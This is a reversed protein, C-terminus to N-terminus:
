KLFGVKTWDPTAMGFAGFNALNERVAYTGPSQVLPLSYGEEFIMKDCENALQIAKEPDLESITQEIKANLEPSGIRAKNGQLNNPDYAYIQPLAGLPLVSGSWSFQVLDFNGPDVVDTFLGTGPVTQISMKVGVAALNQQVIKAIDVWQDQQYMVDRLELKRGNKVRVDGQLKWGLADLEAAAAKPDFAVPASNDQYGTQGMMFIHNNLPKPNAVIGHQNATAIAQRDIAKSIAVRLKPDSLLAGPAGNFTIHSFTPEPSRRLVVGPTGKAATVQELGSMQAYDLENNQVAALWASHDLVSFTITDLKPTPGWWKPNRVLTIRNQTRDINGMMFPGASVALTNRASNNFAEPSETVSQPYLPNFQGKWEAYNKNFTVVAQRDDVGREVKEVRDFGSVSAVQYGRDAGAMAQAQSRLDEWTIPTGDSWVAKPNITYTVQQPDTNTLKIDTFYNHDVSLDGKADSAFTEPLMPQVVTAADVDGGDINLVNFNAPFSSLPMRLNGGDRLKSPDTPNIDSKGALDVDGATVTSSSCGSLLLGIAVAPVALRTLTSRIRM